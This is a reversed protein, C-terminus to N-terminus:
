ETEEKSGDELLKTEEDLDRVLKKPRRLERIDEYEKAKLL